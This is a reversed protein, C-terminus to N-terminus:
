ATVEHYAFSLTKPPSHKPLSAVKAKLGSDMAAKREYRTTSSDGIREYRMLSETLVHIPAIAAVRRRYLGDTGYFGALREDYGGIKWFMKKTMFFSASHPAIPDGTHEYRSFAYVVAPDHRGFVLSRFTEEPVVHDLDTLLLWGDDAHHAGINRAALWNWRIDTEIRFLRVPFPLPTQLCAPEPSGDDVVIVSVHECVHDDELARWGDQQYRLFSPNEYYPMVLTVRKPTQGRPVTVVPCDRCWLAM